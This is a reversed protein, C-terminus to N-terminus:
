EEECSGRGYFAKEVAETLAKTIEGAERWGVLARLRLYLAYTSEDGEFGSRLKQEYREAIGRKLEEVQQARGKRARTHAMM